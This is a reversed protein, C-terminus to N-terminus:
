WRRAPRSSIGWFAWDFIRAPPAFDADNLPRRSVRRATFRATRGTWEYSTETKLVIGDATRCYYAQDTSRYAADEQWTCTEGLLRVPPRGPVRVWRQVLEVFPHEGTRHIELSRPEGSENAEYAVLITGNSVRLSRGAPTYRTESSFRGHRRTVYNGDVPDDGAMEVEFDPDAAGPQVRAVPAFALALLDGPPLLEGPGVSRREIATARKYMVTRNDSHPYWFAEWLPIGDATECIETSIGRQEDLLRWITCDEGLARDHRGTPIRRPQGPSQNLRVSVSLLTGDHARSASVALGRASDLYSSEMSNRYLTSDIHTLSGSRYVTSRDGSSAHHGEVLEYQVVLGAPPSSAEFNALQVLLVFPAVAM